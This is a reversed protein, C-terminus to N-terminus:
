RVAWALGDPEKGADIRGTVTLTKLDVVVVYGSLTSAVFARSGDPDMQIGAAGGGLKVRQVERRTAADLVVLDSGGLTSIVVLKGNPTFKLRNAGRVNAALTAVVKKAAVDVVSVTGDQANAVWIERGDPAVDFGESGRGVPVVTQTWQPTRPPPPPGGQPPGGAPPGGPPPGGPGPGGASKEFISLTASSVNTTVIRSLDKWVTIMHTRDQGTGMIWDVKGAAPDYCGFVKNAEATFYLKGDVYDLGHPGRLAGLDIARLTKQAPLDVVTITNYAGGGYNSIYALKGDTSAEVEHPDPGSPMRAVVQLTSPDVISLTHDRKSLVLLAPTPTSHSQALVTGALALIVISVIGAKM